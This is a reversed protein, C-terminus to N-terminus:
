EYRQGGCALRLITTLRPQSSVSDGQQLQGKRHTIGLPWMVQEPVGM